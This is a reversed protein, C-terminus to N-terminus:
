PSNKSGLTGAADLTSFHSLHGDVLHDRYDPGHWNRLAIETEWENEKSTRENITKIKIRVSNIALCDEIQGAPKYLTEPLSKSFFGFEVKFENIGTVLEEASHLLDDRYLAYIPKKPHNANRAIFRKPEGLYYAVRQLETVESGRLYCKSLANSKNKSDKATVQHFILDGGVENAVFLDGQLCDSILVLSGKAFHSDQKTQLTDSPDSMNKALEATRKPIDYIILLDTNKIVRNCVTEPMKGFCNEATVLFGFVLRRDQPFINIESRKEVVGRTIPFFEDRSRCGRYGSVHLDQILFQFLTRQVEKESHHEGEVIYHEKTFQYWYIAGSVVLTSLAMGILVAILSMGLCRNDM